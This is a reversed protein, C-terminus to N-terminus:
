KGLISKIKQFNSDGVMKKVVQKAAGVKNVELSGIWDLSKTDNDSEVFVEILVPKEGIQPEVFHPLVAEYEEKSSASYYDFGLDEAYHKVLQPSKKGYHGKAAIYPDTEDGLGARQAMNFSTKFETGLGNNIIMIRLNPGVHRNGLANMDYFFALDGFIGLYLRNKDALSAGLLTSLGGDIGFGGTNSYGRVCQPLEFFNLCRVSNLIGAHLVCNEPVRDHTKYAVWLNSFPIQEEGSVVKQYLSDYEKRFAQYYDTNSANQAKENYREFFTHEEMEFVNELKRFTDRVEGDPNVRWVKKARWISSASVDGIHIVVDFQANASVYSSQSTILGFRVGCKGQYNSCHDCLVVANYKECFTEVAQTLRATWKLHAGVFVAIHNGALTPLADEATYRRIVRFEPLTKVSFDPTYETALNIHVPGGGRRRLELLADNVHVEAAWVDDASHLMPLEVNKKSIDNFAVSRDIVQDINQGIKGTHRTSTIALIPLKRYFAETLGPAYNRSATAATCSLAVPEGSEAALGCAIYAASREDVSSYIEFYPDNQISAVFAINTTGPSAVVKQINHSKMLYILLQVNKEASYANSM